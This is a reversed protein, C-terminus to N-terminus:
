ESPDATEDNLRVAFRSTASVGEVRSDALLRSRFDAQSSRAIVVGIQAYNSVLTGGASQVLSGASASSAGDRYLVIFTEAGAGTAAAAPLSLGLSSAAALLVGLRPLNWRLWVAGSM